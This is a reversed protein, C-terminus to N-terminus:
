NKKPIPLKAIRLEQAAMQRYNEAIVLLQRKVKPDSTVTAIDLSTDTMRRIM